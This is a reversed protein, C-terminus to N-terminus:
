SRHAHMSNSATFLAPYRPNVCMGHRRTLMEQIARRNKQEKQKGEVEDARYYLSM